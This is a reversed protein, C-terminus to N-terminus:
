IEKIDIIGKQAKIRNDVYHSMVKVLYNIANSNNNIMVNLQKILQTQTTDSNNIKLANNYVMFDNNILTLTKEEENHYFQLKSIILNYENEDDIGQKVFKGLHIIGINQYLKEGIITISIKNIQKIFNNVCTYLNNVIQNNKNKVDYLSNRAAILKQKEDNINYGHIDSFSSLYSDYQYIVNNLQGLYNNLYSNVTGLNNYNFYIKNGYVSTKNYLYQYCQNFEELDDLLLKIKQYDEDISNFFLTSHGDRWINSLAIYENNINLETEELDNILKNVKNLTNNLLGNNIFM